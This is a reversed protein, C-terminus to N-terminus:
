NDPFRKKITDMMQTIIQENSSTIKPENEVRDFDPLVGDTDEIIQGDKRVILTKRAYKRDRLFLGLSVSSKEPEFIILDLENGDITIPMANEAGSLGEPFRTALWHYYGEFKNPQQNLELSKEPM